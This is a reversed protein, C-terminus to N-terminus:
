AYRQGPKSRPDDTVIEILIKISHVVVKVYEHVEIYM